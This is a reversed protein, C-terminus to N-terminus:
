MDQNNAPKDKSTGMLTDRLGGPIQVNGKTKSKKRPTQVEKNSKEM